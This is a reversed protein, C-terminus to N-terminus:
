HGESRSRMRDRSNPVWVYALWNVFEDLKIGGRTLIEIEGSHDRFCILVPEFNRRELERIKQELVDEHSVEVVVNKDEVDSHNTM